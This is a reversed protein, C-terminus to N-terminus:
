SSGIAVNGPTHTHTVVARAEFFLVEVHQNPAGGSFLIERERKRLQQATILLAVASRISSFNVEPLGIKPPGWVLSLSPPSISEGGWAHFFSYKGERKILYRWSHHCM